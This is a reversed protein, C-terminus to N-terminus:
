RRVLIRLRHRADNDLRDAVGAADDRGGGSYKWIMRLIQSRWLTMRIKSSTIVPNALVPVINAACVNPTVGSMMQVPLPMELPTIGSPAMIARSSM